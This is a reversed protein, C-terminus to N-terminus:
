VMRFAGKLQIGKFVDTSPRCTINMFCATQAQQHDKHLMEMVHLLTGVLRKSSHPLRRERM